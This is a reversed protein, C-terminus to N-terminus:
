TKPEPGITIDEFSVEDDSELDTGVSLDKDSADAKIRRFRIAKRARVGDGIVIKRLGEEDPATCVVITLAAFGAAGAIALRWGLALDHVTEALVYFIAAAVLAIAIEFITRRM